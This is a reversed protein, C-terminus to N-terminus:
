KTMDVTEKEYLPTYKDQYYNEHTIEFSTDPACTIVACGRQYGLKDIGSYASYDISYGYSLTVGKYRLVFNNLHDHGYFLAKTSGLELIAEFLLEDKEACYVYPDEEGVDGGIYSVNDTNQSDNNVYEDYANRVEKLPIHTFLMSQVTTFDEENEPKKSEDLSALITNNYATYHEITDRYWEIQDDHVGEYDWLIGLPDADTYANTDMMVLSKTILGDTNRVNIVHNCEGFVNAPGKSFLCYELSEAEYMTAVAARNHYNYGESDHNGFAVTWYVGLREMLRIFHNHAYSNNLTGYWPVAFSIDGTIVVLDPKEATVMAAVANLAKKDKEQSFIGGCLHIDTLHLVKFDEDTTFYYNGLEDKEPKLQNEIVVPQFSDIYDNIIGDNIINAVFFGLFIAMLSLVISAFVILFRKM